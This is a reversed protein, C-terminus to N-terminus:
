HHAYVQNRPHGLLEEDEFDRAEDMLNVPFAEWLVNGVSWAASVNV